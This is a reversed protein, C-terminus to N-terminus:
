AWQGALAQLPRALSQMRLLRVGNRNRFSMFPMLGQELLAEGARESLYVEACAQMHKEGDREVIHAPLDGVDLRDGPSMSWGNELFSEGLLLACAIAPHSWLYAEHDGGDAFEEFPFSDIRETKDGYPLRLLFRPLALGIWQAVASTRLSQWSQSAEDDAMAWQKPDPTEILSRCGALSADAAALFPAFAQSAIAGLMGLLQADELTRAFTYQGVILSWPCADIGSRTEEVLRQYLQTHEPNESAAAFDAQLDARSVDLLHLSMREGLELASLLWRISRWTSELAQFAPDHLLSRMLESVATDVSGVYQEQFPPADPVIHPAVARRILQEVAPPLGSKAPATVPPPAKSGLLRELVDDDNERPAGSQLADPQPTGSPRLEAAAQPFTAPDLLRARTEKLSRFVGLERYLRDPHFDDLSRFEVLQASAQAGRPWRVAPKVRALVQDFNDVDVPVIPRAGISRAVQESDRTDGSFDGLVLIRFPSEDDPSHRGTRPRNFTFDFQMRAM